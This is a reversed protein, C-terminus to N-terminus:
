LHGSGADVPVPDIGIVHGGIAMLTGYHFFMAGLILWKKEYLESSRTGWGYRDFRYRWIMGIVFVVIAM